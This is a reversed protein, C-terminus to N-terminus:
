SCLCLPVSILISSENETKLNSQTLQPATVIQDKMASIAMGICDNQLRFLEERNKEGHRKAETTLRKKMGCMAELHTLKAPHPTQPTKWAPPPFNDKYLAEKGGNVPKEQM